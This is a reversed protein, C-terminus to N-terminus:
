PRKRRIALVMAFGYLVIAPVFFEYQYPRPMQSHITADTDRMFTFLIVASAIGAMMWSALLPHFPGYEEEQKIIIIGAFVMVASVIMPAIVPGIWPFPILFLIDWDFLTAPWNLIAKLWVYYFIDWVGFAIMFYSFKQWGSTGALFGIAALMVITAFERALEVAVHSAGLMRLPFSFGEPYYLARLYTVVSSEVLAFAVGFVIVLIIKRKM